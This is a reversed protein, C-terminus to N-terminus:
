EFFPKLICSGLGNFNISTHTTKSEVRFFGANQGTSGERPLYIQEVQVFFVVIQHCFCGDILVEMPFDYGFENPPFLLNWPGLLDKM